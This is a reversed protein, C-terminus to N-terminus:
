VLFGFTQLNFNGCLVPDKLSRLIEASKRLRQHFLASTPLNQGLLEKLNSRRSTKLQKVCSGFGDFSFLDISAETIKLGPM